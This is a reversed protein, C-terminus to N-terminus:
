HNREDREGRETDDSDKEARGDNELLSFRAPLVGGGFGSLYRRLAKGARVTM